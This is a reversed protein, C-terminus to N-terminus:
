EPTDFDHYPEGKEKSLIDLAAAAGDGASIIAQIKQQRTLWGGGYVNEVSARCNKDVVVSGDENQECGLDVALDRARGTAFVVYDADYEDAETTVVFGDGGREVGTVEEQRRDVGFDDVHNRAVDMFEDGDISDIALYNYLHAAHMPTEDTDFVVTELDNKGALLAASLGM